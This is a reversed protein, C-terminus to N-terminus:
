PVISGCCSHGIEGCHAYLLPVAIPQNLCPLIVISLHRPYLGTSRHMTEEVDVGRMEIEQRAHGDTEVVHEVHRYELNGKKHEGELEDGLPWCDRKVRVIGVRWGKCHRDWAPYSIQPRLRNGDSAGM